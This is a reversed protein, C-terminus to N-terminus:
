DEALERLETTREVVMPFNMPPQTWDGTESSPRRHLPSTLRRRFAPTQMWGGDMRSEAAVLGPDAPIPNTQDREGKPM